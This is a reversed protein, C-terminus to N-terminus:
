LFAISLSGCFVNMEKGITKKELSFKRNLFMLMNRVFKEYLLIKPLKERTVHLFFFAARLVKTCFIQV